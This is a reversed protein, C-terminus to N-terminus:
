AMLVVVVAIVGSVFIALLFARFRYKTVDLEAFETPNCRPRLMFSAVCAVTLMIEFSYEPWSRAPYGVLMATAAIILSAAVGEGIAAAIRYLLDSM